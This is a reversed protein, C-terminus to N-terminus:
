RCASDENNELSINQNKRILALQEAILGLFFFILGTVFILLTGVSLSEGQLLHGGGWVGSFLLFFLAPPLFIRMPHFLTMIHLIELVTDIATRTNITSEGATRPMVTIPHEFVLRMHNMFVLVIIDSFAMNDPCLQMYKKVLSTRYIKMGSNLDKIPIPMLINAIFRILGKGTKRYLNEKHKGRSGIIMDADSQRIVDYLSAVDEFRHQGDADMTIVYTTETVNVGTKIAGGYGRNVKHHLPTFFPLEKYRALLARTGDQSNGDVIVLKCGHVQCYKILEPLFSSLAQEENFVPIVITLDNMYM